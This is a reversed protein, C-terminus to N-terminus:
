MLRPDSGAFLCSLGSVESSPNRVRESRTLGAKKGGSIGPIGGADDPHRHTRVLSPGIRVEAGEAAPDERRRRWFSM